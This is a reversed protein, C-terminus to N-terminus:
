IQLVCLLECTPGIYGITLKFFNHVFSTCTIHLYCTEVGLHRLLSKKKKKKKVIVLEFTSQFQRM